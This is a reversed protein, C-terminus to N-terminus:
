HSTEAGNRAAFEDATQLRQAKVARINATAVFEHQAGVAAEDQRIRMASVDARSEQDTEQALGPNGALLPVGGAFVLARIRRVDQHPAREFEVLTDLDSRQRQQGRVYSGFVGLSRVAYRQRLEPMHGRLAQM